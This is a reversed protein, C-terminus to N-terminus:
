LSCRRQAQRPQAGAEERLKLDLVLVGGVDKYEDVTLNASNVSSHRSMMSQYFKPDAPMSHRRSYRKEHSNPESGRSNRHSAALQNMLTQVEQFRNDKVSASSNFTSALLKATPRITAKPQPRRFCCRFLLKLTLICM